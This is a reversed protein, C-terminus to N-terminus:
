STSEPEPKSAKNRNEEALYRLFRIFILIKHSELRDLFLGARIAPGWYARTEDIERIRTPTTIEAAVVEAM